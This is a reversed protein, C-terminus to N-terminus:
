QAGQQLLTEPKRLFMVNKEIFDLIDGTLNVNLKVLRGDYVKPNNGEVAMVVVLKGNEDKSSSISLASFRLDKLIDRVLTVQENDGPITEPPMVITGPGDAKLDGKLITLKGDKGVVVPLTGSVTGTGTVRDGTLWQMLEDLSVRQVELNVTTDKRGEFPLRVNRVSIRGQRWPMSAQAITLASKQPTVPTYHMMFKIQWAGDSNKLLGELIVTEGNATLTGGGNLVPVTLSDNTVTVDALTWAGQWQKNDIISAQLATKGASMDFGAGTFELGDADYSFEPEPIKQWTLDLPASLQGIDSFVSLRSDKLAMRDFPIHALDEPTVPLFALPSVAEETGSKYDQLGQVAWQKGDQKITLDLGSATFERLNKNWLERPSYAFDVNKLVLPMDGGISINSLAASKLGISSITLSVNQFGKGALITELRRELWSKYPIFLAGLVIALAVVLGIVSKKM